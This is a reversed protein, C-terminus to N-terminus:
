KKIILLIKYNLGYQNNSIWIGNWRLIIQYKNSNRNEVQIQNSIIPMRFLIGSENSSKLMGVYTYEKIDLGNTKCFELTKRQFYGDVKEIFTTFEQNRENKDVQLYELNCKRKNNFLSVIPETIELTSSAVNIKYLTIDNDANYYNLKIFHGNDIVKNSEISDYHIHSASLKNYQIAIEM